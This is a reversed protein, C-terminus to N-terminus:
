ILNQLHDSLGLYTAEAKGLWLSKSFHNDLWPGSSLFLAYVGVWTHKNWMINTVRVAAKKSLLDSMHVYTIVVIGMTNTHSM